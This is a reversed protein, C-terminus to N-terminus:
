KKKKDKNKKSYKNLLGQMDDQLESSSDIIAKQKLDEHIKLWPKRSM